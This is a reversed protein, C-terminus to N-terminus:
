QFYHNLHTCKYKLHSCFINVFYTETSICLITYIRNCVYILVIYQEFNLCLHKSVKKFPWTSNKRTIQFILVRKTWEFIFLLDDTSVMMDIWVQLVSKRKHSVFIYIKFSHQYSFLKPEWQNESYPCLFIISILFFIWYLLWFPKIILM